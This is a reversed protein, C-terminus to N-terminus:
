GLSPGQVYAEPIDRLAAMLAIESKQAGQGHHVSSIRFARVFNNEVATYVPTSCERSSTRRFLDVQDAVDRHVQDSAITVALPKWFCTTHTRRFPSRTALIGRSTCTHGHM